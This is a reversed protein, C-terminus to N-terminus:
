RQEETGTKVSSGRSPVEQGRYPEQDDMAISVHSGTHVQLISQAAHELKEQRYRLIGKVCELVTGALMVMAFIQGFGWEDDSNRAELRSENSLRIAVVFYVHLVFQLAGVELTTLQYQISIHSDMASFANVFVCFLYFCTIAVYINDVYPHSANPLAILATDYCHGPVNDDWSKLAIGFRITFTLYLIAFVVIPGLRTYTYVSKKGFAVSIAAANSVGTFNITDYLLHYQYLTLFKAQSIGTLSLAIGIMTQADSITLLIDNIIETKTTSAWSEDKRAAIVYSGVSLLLSLLAQFGFASLIGIGGIDPNADGVDVCAM